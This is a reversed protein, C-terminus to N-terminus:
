ISSTSISLMNPRIAFEIHQFSAGMAATLQYYKGDEQSAKNLHERLTKLLLAFTEKESDDAKPTGQDNANDTTDPARYSGPYEWDIDVGDFDYTRIYQVVSAAFRDRAEQTAAVDHFNGSQTWGGVSVLVYLHPYEKKLKKFQGLNGKYPSDWPEGLSAETAAYNDFNAIVGDKITAFAYNLHTIKEFPVKAPVYNDHGSYIGWEPFYGVIKKMSDLEAKTPAAYLASAAAVSVLISLTTKKVSIM